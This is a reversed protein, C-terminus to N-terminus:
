AFLNVSELIVWEVQHFFYEDSKRERRREGKTGRERETM